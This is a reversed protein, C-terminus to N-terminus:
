RVGWLIATGDDSCSVIRKGDPSWRMGWVTDTHGALAALRTGSGPEWVQVVGTSGACALLRGDPSWSVPYSWGANDPAV